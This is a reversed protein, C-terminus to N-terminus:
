RNKKIQNWLNNNNVRIAENLKAVKIIQDIKNNTLKM